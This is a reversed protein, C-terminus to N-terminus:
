EYRSARAALVLMDWAHAADFAPPAPVADHVEFNEPRQLLSWDALPGSRLYQYRLKDKTLVALKYDIESM